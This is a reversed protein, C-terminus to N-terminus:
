LNTTYSSCYILYEHAAEDLMFYIYIGYRARLKIGWGPRDEIWV